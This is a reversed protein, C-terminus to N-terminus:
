SRFPQTVQVQWLLHGSAAYKREFAGVCDTAQIMKVEATYGLLSAAFAFEDAYLQWNTRLETIPALQLMTAFLPHGHWRRMIHRSKPYPNPYFITHKEICSAYKQGLLRWFDEAEAQIIAYNRSGEQQHAETYAKKTHKALRHASRDFGLVFATPHQQALYVTSEGTGCGSDLILRKKGSDLILQECEAFARQSFEPIPRLYESTAHKRVLAALQSHIGSQNSEILRSNM